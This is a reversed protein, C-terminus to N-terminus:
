QGIPAPSVYKGSRLSRDVRGLGIGQSVLSTQSLLRDGTFSVSVIGPMLDAGDMKALMKHIESGVDSNFSAGFDASQLGEVAWVIANKSADWSGQPKTQLADVQVGEPLQVCAEFVIDKLNVQSIASDNMQYALLLLLASPGKKWTTSVWLPVFDELCEEVKVQYKFIPLTLESNPDLKTLDIEVNYPQEANPVSVLETNPVITSLAEHETIQLQFTGQRPLLAPITLSIEGILMLKSALGNEFLVNIVESISATPQSVPPIVSRDLTSFFDSEEISNPATEVAVTDAPVVSPTATPTEAVSETVVSGSPIYADMPRITASSDPAAETPVSAEEARRSFLSKPYM